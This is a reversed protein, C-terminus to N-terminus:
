DGEIDIPIKVEDGTTIHSLSFEYKRRTNQRLDRFRWSNNRTHEKEFEKKDFEPLNDLLDYHTKLLTQVRTNDAIIEKKLANVKTQLRTNLRKSSTLQRRATDQILGISQKLKTIATEFEEARDYTNFRYYSRKTTELDHPIEFSDFIKSSIALKEFFPKYKNYVTWYKKELPKNKEISEKREEEITISELLAAVPAFRDLEQKHHKYQSIIEEPDTEDGILTQILAERSLPPLIRIKRARFNSYSEGCIEKLEVPHLTYTGSFIDRLTNSYQRCIAALDNWAYFGPGTTGHAVEAEENTYWKNLEYNFIQRYNTNQFIKTKATLSPQLIKYFKTDKHQNDLFKFKQTKTM